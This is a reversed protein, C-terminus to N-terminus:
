KELWVDLGAGGLTPKYKETRIPEHSLVHLDHFVAGVKRADRCFDMKRITKYNNKKGTHM